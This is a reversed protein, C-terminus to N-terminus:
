SVLFNLTETQKNKLESLRAEFDYDGIFGRDKTYEKHIREMEKIPNKKEPDLLDLQNKKLENYQAQLSINYNTPDLVLNIKYNLNVRRPLDEVELTLEWIFDKDLVAKKFKFATHHGDIETDIELIDLAKKQEETIYKGADELIGIKKADNM